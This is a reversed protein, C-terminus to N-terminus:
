LPNLYKRHEPYGGISVTLLTPCVRLHPVYYVRVLVVPQRLDIEEDEFFRQSLRTVESRLLRWPITMVGLRSGQKGPNIDEDAVQCLACSQQGPKSSGVCEQKNVRPRVQRCSVFHRRVGRLSFAHLM